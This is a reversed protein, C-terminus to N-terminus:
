PYVCLDAALPLCHCLYRRLYCERTKVVLNCLISCENSSKIFEKGEELHSNSFAVDLLFKELLTDLSCDTCGVSYVVITNALDVCGNVLIDIHDRFV